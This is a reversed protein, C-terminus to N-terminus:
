GELHPDSALLFNFATCLMWHVTFLQFMTVVFQKEDVSEKKHIEIQHVYKAIMANLLACLMTVMASQMYEVRRIQLEDQAAAGQPLGGFVQDRQYNFPVGLADVNPRDQM